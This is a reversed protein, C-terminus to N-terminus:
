SRAARIVALGKILDVARALVPDHIVPRPPEARPIPPLNDDDAGDKRRQNVLQAESMHDVYSSIDNTAAPSSVENTNTAAYPNVLFTKENKPDVPITIDPKLGLTPNGFILGLRLERLKTALATATGQTDNNVLITLPLKEAAFVDTTSKLVSADDGQSARLDLVTGIIRNTGTLNEDAANIESPLGSNIHNIRLYIINDELLASRALSPAPSDAHVWIQTLLLLLLFVPFRRIM